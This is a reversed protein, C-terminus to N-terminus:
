NGSSLPGNASKLIRFYYFILFWNALSLSSQKHSIPLILVLMLTLVASPVSALTYVNVVLISHGRNGDREMILTQLLQNKVKFITQDQVDLEYAVEMESGAVSFM